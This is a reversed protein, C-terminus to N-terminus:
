IFHFSISRLTWTALLAIPSFTGWSLKLGGLEKFHAAHPLRRLISISTLQISLISLFVQPIYDLVVNEFLSSLKYTITKYLHCELVFTHRMKLQMIHHDLYYRHIHEEHFM